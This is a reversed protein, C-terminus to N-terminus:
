GRRLEDDILDHKLIDMEGLITRLPHGDRLSWGHGVSEGQWVAVAVIGTLEGTKANSLLNELHSILVERPRLIRAETIKAVPKTMNNKAGGNAAVCVFRGERPTILM